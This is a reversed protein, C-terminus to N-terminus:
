MGDDADAGIDGHAVLALPPVEAPQDQAAVAADGVPAAIGVGQSEGIIFPPMWNAPEHASSREGFSEPAFFIARLIKTTM